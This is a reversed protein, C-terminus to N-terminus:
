LKCRVSVMTDTPPVISRVVELRLGGACSADQIFRYCDGSQASCAPLLTMSGDARTDWAECDAQAAIPRTLCSDGLMGRIEKAIGFAPATMEAGCAMQVYNRPYLSAHDTLRIAPDIETANTSPWNCAPQLAPIASGGGPPVEMAVELAPGVGAIAGFVVNRGDGKLSKIFSAAADVRPFYASDVSAHCRTKAGPVNMETPTQGGDDCTVGFRTCRFSQLPGLTSTDAGILTSHAFSCDDENTIVIIALRATPRLFGANAANNDLARKAAHLPQEFGCGSNGVSSIAAFADVLAGTYNTERVGGADRDYIFSGTVLATGNTQLAGDKGTGSCSGPGSGIGPGAATDDTGKTGMDTTVVGLHLSPLGGPGSLAQLFTPFAQQWSLQLDAGGGPSDDMVFLVDVDNSQTVPVLAVQTKGDSPGGNGVSVELTCGGLLLSLAVLKTM